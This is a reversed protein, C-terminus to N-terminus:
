ADIRTSPRGPIRSEDAAMGVRALFLPLLWRVLDRDGDHVKAMTKTTVM